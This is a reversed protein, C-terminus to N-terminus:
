GERRGPRRRGKTRYNLHQKPLRNDEMRHVHPFCSHRHTCLKEELSTVHLEELIEENRKHDILIYGGRRQLYKMNSISPRRQTTTTKQTASPLTEEM